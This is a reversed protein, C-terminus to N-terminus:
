HVIDRFMILINGMRKPIAAFEVGVRSSEVRATKRYDRSRVCGFRM